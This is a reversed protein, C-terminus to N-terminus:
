QAIEVTYSMWADWLAADPTGREPGENGFRAAWSELVAFVEQARLYDNVIQNMSRGAEFAETRVRAHVEDSLRLPFSKM